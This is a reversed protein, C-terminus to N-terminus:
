FSPESPWWNTPVGCVLSLLLFMILTLAAALWYLATCRRHCADREAEPKNGCYLQCAVALAIVLLILGGFIGFIIKACFDSSGGGGPDPSTALYAVGAVGGAIVCVGAATMALKKNFLWNM